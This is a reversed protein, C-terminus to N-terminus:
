SANIADDLLRIEHDDNRDLYAYLRAAFDRWSARYSKGGVTIHMRVVAVRRARFIAVNIADDSPPQAPANDARKSADDGRGSSSALVLVILVLGLWRSASM